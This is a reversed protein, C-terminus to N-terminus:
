PNSNSSVQVSALQTQLSAIDAQQSLIMSYLEANSPVGLDDNRTM